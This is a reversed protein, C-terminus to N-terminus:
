KRRRRGGPTEAALDGMLPFEPAVEGVSGPAWRAFQSKCKLRAVGGIPEVPSVAAGGLTVLEM